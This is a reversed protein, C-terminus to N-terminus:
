GIYKKIKPRYIRIYVSVVRTVCIDYAIFMINGCLMLVPWTFKGFEELASNDIGFIYTGLLLILVFSINFIALKIIWEVARNTIKEIISKIIPYYGFFLIYTIASEKECIIFSLVSVVAFVALSHKKGAEVTPIIILCGSIAPMAYTFWPFYAVLM